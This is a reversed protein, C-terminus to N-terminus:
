CIASVKMSRELMGKCVNMLSSMRDVFVDCEPAEALLSGLLHLARAVPSCRYLNTRSPPVAFLKHSRARLYRDPVFLKITKEVLDMCDIKNRIINLIFKVLALNRRLEISNYGLHGELFRTPYMFPYYVHNKKYLYRLFRKQVQELMLIYKDEHPSWVVANTELISRVLAGYLAQTAAATLPAANRLVFGLRQFAANTVKM